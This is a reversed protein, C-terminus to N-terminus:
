SAASRSGAQWENRPDSVAKIVRPGNVGTEQCERFFSVALLRLAGQKFSEEYTRKQVAM